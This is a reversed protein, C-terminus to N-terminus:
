ACQFRPFSEDYKRKMIGFSGSVVRARRARTCPTTVTRAEPSDKSPTSAGSSIRQDRETGYATHILNQEPEFATGAENLRSFLMPSRGLAPNGLKASANWVVYVNSNRGSAIRAGAKYAARVGENHKEAAAKAREVTLPPLEAERGLIGHLASFTPVLAVDHDKIVRITPADLM